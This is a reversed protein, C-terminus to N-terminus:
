SVHKGEYLSISVKRGGEEENCVVKVNQQTQSQRLCNSSLYLKYLFSIFFYFSGGYLLGRSYNADDAKM